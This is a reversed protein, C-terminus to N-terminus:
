LRDCMQIERKKLLKKKQGKVTAIPNVPNQTHRFHDNPTQTHFNKKKKKSLLQQMLSQGCPFDELDFFVTEKELREIKRPFIAFPM